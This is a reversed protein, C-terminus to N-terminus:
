ESFPCAEDIQPAGGTRPQLVGRLLDTWRSEDDANIKLLDPDSEGFRDVRYLRVNQRELRFRKEPVRGVVVEQDGVCRGGRGTHREGIM